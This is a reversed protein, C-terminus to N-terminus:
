VSRLNKTGTIYVSGDLRKELRELLKAVRPILDIKEASECGEDGMAKDFKKAQKVFKELAEFKGKLDEFEKHSVPPIPITDYWFIQRDWHPKQSEMVTSYTCM